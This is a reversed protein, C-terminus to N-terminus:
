RRVTNRIDLMQYAAASQALSSAPFAPDIKAAVIEAVIGAVNATADISRAYALIVPSLKRAVYEAHSEYFKAVDAGFAVADAGRKECARMIDAKERASIEALASRYVINFADAVRTEDNPNTVPEPAGDGVLGLNLPRYYVDGLSDPQANIDEFERVEDISFVGDQLMQHYFTARSANDGRLLAQVRHKTYLTQREKESLLSADYRKEFRTLWPMMTYTVFEQGQHEINTFTAHELDSLMHLPIRTVRAWDVVQYKRTEILQAAEPDVTMKEWKLGHELIAVRHANTLGRHATEWSQKMNLKAEPTLAGPYVLAGGAQSGNEFFKNSYTEASQALAITQAFYSVMDVGQIGNWSFGIQKLMRDASLVAGGGNAPNRVKYQLKGDADREPTVLHMPIPWLALVRGANDREIEAYATGTLCAWACMLERFEYSTQDPNSQDHLVRWVPNDRAERRGDETNELLLLPLMAMTEAIIKVSAFVVPVTLATETTVDGANKSFSIVGGVQSISSPHGLTLRQSRREIAQRIM